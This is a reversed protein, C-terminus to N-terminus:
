ELPCGLKNDIELLDALTVMTDREGSLLAANVDAIVDAASRPYDIDTHEANLVAAVGQKLLIKAAGAADPGGGYDLADMLSDSDLGYDDAVDFIDEVAQDITFGVWAEDHNTWFGNSCGEPSAWFGANVEGQATQSDTFGALTRGITFSLTVTAMLLFAFRRTM